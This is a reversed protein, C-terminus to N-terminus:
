RGVEPEGSVVPSSTTGRPVLRGNIVTFEQGTETSRVVAGNRLGGVASLNVVDGPTAGASLRDVRAQSEAIKADALRRQLDFRRDADAQERERGLFTLGATQLQPDASGMLIQGIRRPDSARIRELTQNRIAENDAELRNASGRLFGGALGQAFSSVPSLPSVNQNDRLASRVLMNGVDARNRITSRPTFVPPM